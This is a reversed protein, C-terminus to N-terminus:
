FASNAGISNVLTASNGAVPAGAIKQNWPNDAPFVQNGMLSPVDRRELEEVPPRYAAVAPRCTRRLKRLLRTWSARLTRSIFMGARWLAVAVLGRLCEPPTTLRRSNSDM